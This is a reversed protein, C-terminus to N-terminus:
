EVRRVLFVHAAGPDLRMYLGSRLLADRTWRYRADTLRDDFDFALGKGLHGGVDVNAQSLFASLNVAVVALSEGRKWRYAVINGFSDDGAPSLRLMRWEGDHFIKDVAFRHIRQYLNRVAEDPPEDPWRGLQVPPKVRCGEFQGDFFFRMGPATSVLVAAAPLRRGLTAASRPEDHNEIFRALRSSDPDPAALLGRVRAAADASHLSDLLQKDYAFDFGHALLTGELGWYVEALYTLDPVAATASPWFDDAPAIWQERLV